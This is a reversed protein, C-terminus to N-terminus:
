SIFKKKTKRDFLFDMNYKRISPLSFRASKSRTVISKQDM